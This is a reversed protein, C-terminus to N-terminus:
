PLRLRAGTVRSPQNAIIISTSPSLGVANTAQVHVKTLQRTPVVLTAALNTTFLNTFPVDAQLVVLRYGTVEQSAPAASWALSLTWGEGTNVRTSTTVVPGTPLGLVPTYPVPVSAEGEFGDINLATVTLSYPQGHVLNTLTLQNTNVAIRQGGPAFYVAWGIAGDSPPPLDWVLTAAQTSSALLTSAAALTLLHKTTNM